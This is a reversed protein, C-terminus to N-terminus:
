EKVEQPLAMRRGCHPCYNSPLNIGFGCESCVYGKQNKIWVTGPYPDPLEKWAIIFTRIFNEGNFFDIYVAPEEMTASNWITVLYRGRKKPKILRIDWWVNIKDRDVVM